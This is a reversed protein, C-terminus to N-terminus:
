EFLDCTKERGELAIPDMLGASAQLEGLRQAAATLYEQQTPLRQLSSTPSHHLAAAAAAAAASLHYTPPSLSHPNPLGLLAASAQQAAESM